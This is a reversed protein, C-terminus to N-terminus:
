PNKTLNQMFDPMCLENCTKNNLEFITYCDGDICVKYAEAPIIATYYLYTLTTIVFLLVSAYFFWNGVLETKLEM